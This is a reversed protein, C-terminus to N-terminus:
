YSGKVATQDNLFIQYMTECAILHLKEINSGGYNIASYDFQGGEQFAKTLSTVCVCLAGGRLKFIRSLVMVAASEMERPIVNM